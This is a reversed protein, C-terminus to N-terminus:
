QGRRGECYYSLSDDIVDPVVCRPIKETGAEAELTRKRILAFVSLVATALTGSYSLIQAGLKVNEFTRQDLPSMVLWVIKRFTVM